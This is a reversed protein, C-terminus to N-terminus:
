SRPEFIRPAPAFGRSVGAAPFAESSEVVAEKVENAGFGRISPNVTDEAPLLNEEHPTGGHRGTNYQKVLPPSGQVTVPPSFWRRIGITSSPMERGILDV